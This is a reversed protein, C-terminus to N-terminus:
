KTASRSTPGGAVAGVAELLMGDADVGCAQGLALALAVEPLWYLGQRFEFRGVDQRVYVGPTGDVVLEDPSDVRIFSSFEIIKRRSGDQDVIFDIAVAGIGLRDSIRWAEELAEPPLAGSRLLGAGSARFDGPPADRYYGFLLPGVVIIRMDIRLDRELTQAYAYGKQNAYPWYTRRGRTSFAKRVAAKARRATLREVGASGAGSAIKWVVETGLAAIEKLADAKDFSAVTEPVDVGASQLAWSELIKDSFLTIARLTPYTSLGLFEHMHFIKRRAEELQHFQSGPRWLVMDLDRLGELWSNSHIDIIRYPFSNTELFRRYKTWYPKAGTDQVLGVRPRAVDEPWAVRFPAAVDVHEADDCLPDTARRPAILPVLRPMALVVLRRRRLRELGRM